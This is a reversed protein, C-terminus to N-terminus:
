AAIYTASGRMNQSTSSTSGQIPRDTEFAINDTNGWPWILYMRNDEFAVSTAEVSTGTITDAVDYPLGEIVSTGSTSVSATSFYFNVMVLRGIKVYTGNANTLAGMGTGSTPTWTGEEYDDLLESSMSGSGNGTASFDIGQGSAFVINESLNIRGNHSVSFVSTGSSNLAEYALFGGNNTTVRSRIVSGNAGSDVVDLKRGPSTSNIGINGSSDIRLKETVAGDTTSSGGAKTLFVFQSGWSSNYQNHIAIASTPYAALAKTASYTTGNASWDGGCSLFSTITGGEVSQNLAGFWNTDNSRWKINPTTDDTSIGVLTGDSTIRFREAGNVTFEMHNDSHFYQLMGINNSGADAFNIQSYGSTDTSELILQSLDGGSKVRLQANGSSTHADILYSPNNTGIGINGGTFYSVGSSAIEVTKLHTGSGSNQYLRLEGNGASDDALLQFIHNGRTTDKAGLVLSNPAAYISLKDSPNDTGIGVSGGTVHIGSQATVIGVSDVSTVDEYTIVGDVTLNGDINLTGDTAGIDSNFFVTSVGADAEINNVVIKSTM